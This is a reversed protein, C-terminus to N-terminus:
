KSGCISHAYTCLVRFRAPRQRRARRADFKAEPGPRKKPSSFRGPAIQERMHSFSRLIVTFDKTYTSTFYVALTNPVLNSICTYVLTYVRISYTFICGHLPYFVTLYALLTRLYGTDGSKRPYDSQVWVKDAYRKGGGEERERERGRRLNAYRKGEM